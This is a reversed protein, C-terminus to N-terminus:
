KKRAIIINFAGDWGPLIEPAHKSKQCFAKEFKFGSEDLLKTIEEPTYHRVHYPYREPAYPLVNQNPTSVILKANPKLVSYFRELLEKAVHIHEITEFSIGIDFQKIPLDVTLCDGLIFSARDVGYFKNAYEIADSSIDVGVTHSAKSKKAIIYSGYGVGCAMDLVAHGAEVHKSAFHYRSVHDPSIGSLNTSAQREGGNRAKLDFANVSAGKQDAFLLKVKRAVRNLTLNYM